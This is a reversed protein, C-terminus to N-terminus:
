IETLVSAPLWGGLGSHLRVLYWAAESREIVVKTGEHIVFVETQDPAPGSRATGQPQTLIAEVQKADREFRTLAFVAVMACMIIALPLGLGIGSASQWRRRAAVVFLALLSLWWLVAVENLTPWLYADVLFGTVGGSPEPERDAKLRRLFRLNAQIDEDRPARRLAREYWVIAHGLDGTKYSANGLNYLLRPDQIGTAVAAEYRQRAGAFDGARYLQNGEAYLGVAASQAAAPGVLALLLVLCVDRWM